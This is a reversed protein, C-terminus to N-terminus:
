VSLFYGNQVFYQYLYEINQINKRILYQIQRVVICFLAICDDKFLYSIKIVDQIWCQCSFTPSSSWDGTLSRDCNAERPTYQLTIRDMMNDFLTILDMRNEFLIILDFTNDFM